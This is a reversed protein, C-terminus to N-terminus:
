KGETSWCQQNPSLFADPRYFNPTPKSFHCNSQFKARSIAGTTVVMETMRLELIGTIWFPSMRTSALGSGGPFHASLSLISVTWYQSVQTTGPFLRYILTSMYLVIYLVSCLYVSVADPVM